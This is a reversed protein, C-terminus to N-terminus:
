GGARRWLMRLEELARHMRWLITGIPTGTSEAIEKFSLNQDIHLEVVERLAAPLSEILQRLLRADNSAALETFPDCDLASPAKELGASDSSPIELNGRRRRDIALNRAVRLLWPGLSNNALTAPPENLLRMFVEQAVDQALDRSLLYKEGCLELKQQYRSRVEEFARIDGDQM